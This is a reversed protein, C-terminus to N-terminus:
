ESRGEGVGGVWDGVIECAFVSEVCPRMCADKEVGREIEIM